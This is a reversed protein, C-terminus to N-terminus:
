FHKRDIAVKKLDEGLELVIEQLLLRALADNTERELVQYRMLRERLDGEDQSSDTM